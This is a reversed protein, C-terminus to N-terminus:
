EEPVAIARVALRIFDSMGRWPEKRANVLPSAEIHLFDSSLLRAASTGVAIAAMSPIAPGTAKAWVMVTSMSSALM